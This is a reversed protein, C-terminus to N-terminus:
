DHNFAHSPLTTAAERYFAKILFHPVCPTNKAADLLKLKYAVSGIKQVVEFPGFYRLSLKQNKRLAVSQQRYPQLKVLAYDGVQLQLERRRKDAQQKMYNQSKLLNAKLQSLLKDRTVLIEQVSVPDNADV